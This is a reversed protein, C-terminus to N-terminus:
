QQEMEGANAMVGKERESKVVFEGSKFFKPHRVFSLCCFFSVSMDIGVANRIRVVM